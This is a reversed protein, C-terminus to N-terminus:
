CKTKWVSFMTQGLWISSALNSQMVLQKGSLEFFNQYKGLLVGAQKYYFLESDLLNTWTNKLNLDLMSYFWDLDLLITHTSKLDLELIDYIM